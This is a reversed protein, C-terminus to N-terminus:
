VRELKKLYQLTGEGRRGDEVAALETQWDM